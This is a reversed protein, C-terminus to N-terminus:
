EIYSLPIIRVDIGFGFGPTFLNSASDLDVTKGTYEFGFVDSRNYINNPNLHFIM